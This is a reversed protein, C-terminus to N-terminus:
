MNNQYAWALAVIAASLILMISLSLTIIYFPFDAIIFMIALVVWFVAFIGILYKWAQRSQMSSFRELSRVQFMTYCHGGIGDVWWGTRSHLPCSDEVLDLKDPFGLDHMVRGFSTLSGSLPGSASLLHACKGSLSFGPLYMPAQGV